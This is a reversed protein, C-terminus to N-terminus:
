ILTLPDVRGKPNQIITSFRCPHKIELSDNWFPRNIISRNKHAQGNIFIPSLNCPKGYTDATCCIYNVLLYM